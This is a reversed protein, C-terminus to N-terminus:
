RYRLPHPFHAPATHMMYSLEAKLLELAHVYAIWSLVGGLVLVCVLGKGNISNEHQPEAQSPQPDPREEPEGFDVPTDKAM